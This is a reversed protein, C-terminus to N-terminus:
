ATADTRPPLPAARVPQAADMPSAEPEGFGSFDDFRRSPTPIDDLLQHTPGDHASEFQELKNAVSSVAKQVPAIAEASHQEVEALRQMISGIAQAVLAGGRAE